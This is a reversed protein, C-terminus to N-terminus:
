RDVRVIEYPTTPLPPTNFKANVAYMGQGFSAATTPVDFDPSTLEDVVTGTLFHKDLRIKTIQNKGGEVAYLTTGALVLGDGNVVAGGLDILDAYGTRPDVSYLEGFFSNVVVLRKEKDSSLQGEATGIEIGNANFQGPEFQFDGSFATTISAGGAAGDPTLPLTYFQPAFSDTFFAASSGLIVDNVFGFPVLSVIDIIAGTSGNYLYANGDPGGAVYLVDTAADYAMGVALRGPVGPVLIDGSGTLLDGKWIAGDVLSGVFATSGDTAIGEPFFGDPLGIVDPASQASVPGALAALLVIAVVLTIRRRM